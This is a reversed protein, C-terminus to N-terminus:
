QSRDHIICFCFWIM